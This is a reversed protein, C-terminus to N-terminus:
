ERTNFFGRVTKASSLDNPQTGRGGITTIGVIIAGTKFLEDSIPAAATGVSGCVESM